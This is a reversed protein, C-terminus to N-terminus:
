SCRCHQISCYESWFLWEVGVELLRHVTKAENRPITSWFILLRSSKMIASGWSVNKRSVTSGGIVSVGLLPCGGFLPRCSIYWSSNGKVCYM